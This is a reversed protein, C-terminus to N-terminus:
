EEAAKEVTPRRTSRHHAKWAVFEDNLSRGALDFRRDKQRLYELFDSYEEHTGEPMPQREEKSTPIGKREFLWKSEFPALGPIVYRLLGFLPFYQKGMVTGILAGLFAAHTIVAMPLPLSLGIKQEGTIGLKLILCALFLHYSVMLPVYPTWPSDPLVRGLMTGALNCLVYAVLLIVNM